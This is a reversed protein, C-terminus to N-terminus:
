YLNMYSHVSSKNKKEEEEKERERYYKIYVWSSSFLSGFSSISM